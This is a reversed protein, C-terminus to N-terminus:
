DRSFENQEKITQRILDAEYSVQKQLKKINENAVELDTIPSGESDHMSEYLNSVEEHIRICAISYLSSIEEPNM